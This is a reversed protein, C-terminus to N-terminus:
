PFLAAETEPLRNFGRRELSEATNLPLRQRYSHTIDQAEDFNRIIYPIIMVILETRNESASQSKFLNGLWPIDGLLPVGNDGRGKNSSILGALMVSGGDRLTLTTEIKRNNIVPTLNAGTSTDTSESLEQSVQLDVVGSAQVTPKISLLVGTKRYQVTQTIPANGTDTSQTSGTVVPIENGVEIRAEEGSRVMLKPSSRIVAQKNEYFANLTAKTQGASNLASINLGTAGLGNATGIILNKGGLSASINRWDVGLGERDNINVEALLVDIMVSPVPRDLEELLPRLQLWQQGSGKYIIANRNADVVVNGQEPNGEITQAASSRSGSNSGNSSTSGFSSGGALNGSREGTPSSTNSDNLGSAPISASYGLAGLMTAIGAAQTNRVQYVFLGSEVQEQSQRDLLEVWHRATTLIAPDAAFVILRQLEKLRLVIVGGMPPNESVDYGEAQLVKILAAGLADTDSYVPSIALSHSGKLAPQDFLEVAQSAQRVLDIPGRLMVMSRLADNNIKLSTGAFMDKLWNAMAESRVVRMPIQQFVPRHSMPVDPLASGSVLLPLSDNATNDALQFYLVGDRETLAVGYDSLVFRATAFLDAPPQPDTLRLSVLDTKSQLAPAISFSLGLRNGFVENIFAPLPFNNLNLSIPAGTLDQGLADASAEVYTPGQQVRGPTSQFRQAKLTQEDRVSGAKLSDDYAEQQQPPRIPEPIPTPSPDIACGALMLGLTLLSLPFLRFRPQGGKANRTM